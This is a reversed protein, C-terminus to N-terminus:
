RDSRAVYRWVYRARSRQTELSRNLAAEPDDLLMKNLEDLESVSMMVMSEDDSEVLVVEDYIM